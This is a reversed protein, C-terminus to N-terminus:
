EYEFLLFIGKKAPTVIQKKGRVFEFDRITDVKYGNYDLIYNKEKNLKTYFNMGKELKGSVNKVPNKSYSILGESGMQHYEILQGLSDYVMLFRIYRRKLNYTYYDCYPDYNEHLEYRKKIYNVESLNGKYTCSIVLITIIFSLNITIM